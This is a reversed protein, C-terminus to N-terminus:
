KILWNNKLDNILRGLVGREYRHYRAQDLLEQHPLSLHGQVFANFILEPSLEHSSKKQPPTLSGKHREEEEARRKKRIIRKPDVKNVQIVPMEKCM